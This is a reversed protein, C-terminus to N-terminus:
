LEPVLPPDVLPRRAAGLNRGPATVSLVKSRPRAWRRNIAHLTHLEAAVAQWTEAAKWDGAASARAAETRAFDEAREGHEDEAAMVAMWVPDTASTM